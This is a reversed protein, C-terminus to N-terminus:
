KESINVINNHFMLKQFEAFFFLLLIYKRLCIDLFWKVISIAYTLGIEPRLNLKVTCIQSRFM